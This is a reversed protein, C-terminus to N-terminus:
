KRPQHIINPRSNAPRFDHAPMPKNHFAQIAEAPFDADGKAIAGSIVIQQKPPSPTVVEEEEEEEGDVKKTEVPKEHTHVKHQTIRMGGAKVAPPHGAKLETTEESSSM